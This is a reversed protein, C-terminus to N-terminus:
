IAKYDEYENQAMGYGLQVHKKPDIQTLVTAISPKSFKRFQEIGNHILNRDTKNWAICYLFLDSRKELARADPVAMSAPTDIIILDYTGRLNRILTDMKESSIMDIANTPVARGYIVHLGSKDTTDIVEERKKTGSLYDALSNTSRGGLALHISPRRIDADILIVRQGSKATIRALWTAVTTKGEGALSSTFCIVKCDDETSETHLKINLKLTRIAETIPSSPNDLVFNGIPKNQEPLAEPILSYCQLDLTDEIQRASTFRDQKREKALAILISLIAALLGALTSLLPIDPFSPKSPIKAETLLRANQHQQNPSISDAKKFAKLLEQAENVRASLSNLKDQYNKYRKAEEALSNAMGEDELSKIRTKVLAYDTKLTELVAQSEELIQQDVVTMSAALARMEPHKPGYRTSLATHKQKLQRQTERLKKLAPANRLAPATPNLTFSGDKKLFPTIESQVKQLDHKAQEYEQHTKKSPARANKSAKSEFEDLKTQAEKINAELKQLFQTNVHPQQNSRLTNNKEIYLKALTNVFDATNKPHSGSYSIDLVSARGARKVNLNKDKENFGGLSKIAEKHTHLSQENAGSFLVKATATFKPPVATLSLATLTGALASTGLIFLARRRIIASISTSRIPKM